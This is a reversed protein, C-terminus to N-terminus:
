KSHGRDAHRTTTHAPWGPVPRDLRQLVDRQIAWMIDREEQEPPLGAAISIVRAEPTYVPRGPRVVPCQDILLGFLDALGWAGDGGSAPSSPPGGNPPGTPPDSPPPQSGPGPM